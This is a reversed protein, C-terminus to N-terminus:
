LMPGSHYSLTYPVEGAHPLGLNSGQCQLYDGFPGGPTNGLYLTLLLGLTAWAASGPQGGGGMLFFLSNLASYLLYFCWQHDCQRFPKLAKSCWPSVINILPLPSGTHASSLFLAEGYRLVMRDCQCENGTDQLKLSKGESVWPLAWRSCQNPATLSFFPYLYCLECVVTERWLQSIWLEFM